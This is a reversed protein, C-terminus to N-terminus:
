FHKINRVSLIEPDHDEHTCEGANIIPKVDVNLRLVGSASRDTAGKTFITATANMDLRRRNIRFGQCCVSGTFYDHLRHEAPALTCIAERCNGM